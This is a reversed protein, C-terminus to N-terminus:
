PNQSSPASHKAQKECLIEKAWASRSRLVCGLIVKEEQGGGGVETEQTSPNNYAYM